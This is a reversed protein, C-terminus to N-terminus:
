DVKAKSIDYSKLNALLQMDGLMKKNLMQGLIM